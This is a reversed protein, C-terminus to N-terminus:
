VDAAKSSKFTKKTNTDFTTFVASSKFERRPFSKWGPGLEAGVTFQWGYVQPLLCKAQGGLVTVFVLRKGTPAIYQDYNGVLSRSVHKKVCGMPNVQNHGVVCVQSMLMVYRRNTTHLRDVHAWLCHLCHKLYLGDIFTLSVWSMLKTCFNLASVHYRFHLCLYHSIIVLFSMKIYNM